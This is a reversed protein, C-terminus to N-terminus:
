NLRDPESEREYAFHIIRDPKRILLYGVVILTSAYSFQQIAPYRLHAGSFMLLLVLLMNESGNVAFYVGLGRVITGFILRETM